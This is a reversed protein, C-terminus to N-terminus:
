SNVTWHCVLSTFLAYPHGSSPLTLYTLNSSNSFSNTLYSVLTPLANWASSVTHSLCPTSSFMAKLFYKSHCTCSSTPPIMVSCSFHVAPPLLALYGGWFPILGEVRHQCQAGSRLFRSDTNFLLRLSWGTWDQWRM